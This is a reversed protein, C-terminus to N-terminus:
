SDTNGTLTSPKGEPWWCAERGLKADLWGLSRNVPDWTTNWTATMLVVNQNQGPVFNIFQNRQTTSMSSSQSPATCVPVVVKVVLIEVFTPSRKAKFWSIYLTDGFLFTSKFKQPRHNRGYNQAVTPWKQGDLNGSPQPPPWSPPPSALYANRWQASFQKCGDSQEFNSIEVLWTGPLFKFTQISYAPLIGFIMRIESNNFTKIWNQTVVNWFKDPSEEKRSIDVPRRSIVKGDVWQLKVSFNEDRIAMFIM